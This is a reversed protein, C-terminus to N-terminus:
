ERDPRAVAEYSYVNDKRTQDDSAVDEDDQYFTLDPGASVFYPRENSPIGYGAFGSVGDGVTAELNRPHVYVFEIGWPDIVTLREDNANVTGAFIGLGRGQASDEYDDDSPDTSYYVNRPLLTDVPLSALIQDATGLGRVLEIFGAPEPRIKGNENSKPMVYMEDLPPMSGYETQYTTLLSDLSDLVQKCQRVKAQGLVGRATLVTITLLLGVIGIVTIMEIMTFAARASKRGLAARSTFSSHNDNMLTTNM